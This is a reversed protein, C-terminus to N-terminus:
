KVLKLFLVLKSIDYMNDNWNIKGDDKWQEDYNSDKKVDYTDDLANNFTNYIFLLRKRREPDKSSVSAYDVKWLELNFYITCEKEGNLNAHYDIGQGAVLRKNSLDTFGFNSTEKCAVNIYTRHDFITDNEDNGDFDTVQDGVCSTIM